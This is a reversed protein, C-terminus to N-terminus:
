REHEIAGGYYIKGLFQYHIFSRNFLYSYTIKKKGFVRACIKMIRYRWLHYPTPQNIKDTRM